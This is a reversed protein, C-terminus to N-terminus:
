EAAARLRSELFAREVANETLLLAESYAQRAEDVRGLQRLFDARAAPLYGYVALQPESSLADLAALGAAPGSAFGVAVARNLAVVPSPWLRVLVDYLALVEGWDTDQWAPSEAHVAAIAAQLAYRSPPRARLAERVLSLGQEIAGRDWRSRDQEALM